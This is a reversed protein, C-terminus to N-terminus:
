SIDSNKILDVFADAALAELLEFDDIPFRRIESHASNGSVPDYVIRVTSGNADCISKVKGVNGIGFASKKGVQITSRFMYVSEKVRYEKTGGFYELWIYSPADEGLKRAFAVGLFGVINDDGDRRLKSWPVYRVIHDATPLNAGSGIM